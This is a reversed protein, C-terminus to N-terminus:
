MNNNNNDDEDNNKRKIDAAYVADAFTIDEDTFHVDFLSVLKRKGVAKVADNKSRLQDGILTLRQRLLLHERKHKEINAYNKAEMEKEEESFVALATSTVQYFTEVMSEFQEYQNISTLLQQAADLIAERGKDFSAHGTIMSSMISIEKEGEKIPLLEFLKESVNEIHMIENIWTLGNGIMSALYLVCFGAVVIILITVSTQVEKKGTELIMNTMKNIGGVIDNRLANLVFRAEGTTFTIDEIEMKSIRELNIRMRSLLTTLGHINGTVGYMRIPNMQSCDDSEALFCETEKLLVETNFGTNMRTVPVSDYTYDNTTTYKSDGFHCDLHVAEFYRSMPVLMERATLQSGSCHSSNYMVPNRSRPFTISQDTQLVPVPQLISTLLFQIQFLISARMGSLIINATTPKYNSVYYCVLTVPVAVAVLGLLVSLIITIIIKNNVPSPLQQYAASHKEIEKEMGEEWATDEVANRVLGRQKNKEAEDADEDEYSLKPDPLGLLPVQSSLVLPESNDSTNEGTKASGVNESPITPLKELQAYPLNQSFMMPNKQQYLSTPSLPPIMQTSNFISGTEYESMAHQISISGTSVLGFHSPSRNGSLFSHMALPSQSANIMDEDQNNLLSKSMHMQAYANGGFMPSLQAKSMNGKQMMSMGLPGIEDQGNRAMGNDHEVFGVGNSKFGFHGAGSVENKSPFSPLENVSGEGEHKPSNSSPDNNSQLLRAKSKLNSNQDAAQMGKVNGENVRPSQLHSPAITFATATQEGFLSKNSHPTLPADQISELLPENELLMPSVAEGACMDLVSSSIVLPTKKPSAEQSAVRSGPSNVLVDAARKDDELCSQQESNPETKKSSESEKENQMVEEDAAEDLLLQGVEDWHEIKGSMCSDSPKTDQNYHMAQNMDFEEDDADDDRLLRRIVSQMKNKPVDLMAQYAKMRNRVARRTFIIYIILLTISLPTIFLTIILIFATIIMNCDTNMLEFYYIIVRKAGDLIPVPCNFVLYQINAIYEPDQPRSSINSLYLHHTMQSVTAIVQLMSSSHLTQRKTDIVEEVSGDPQVEEKTTIMFLYTSIDATEWVELNATSQHIRGLMSALNESTEKLMKMLDKKQIMGSPWDDFVPPDSFNYRKDYVFFNYGITASRASHYSLDCVNRLTQLNSQYSNTMIVYVVLAAVLAVINVFHLTIISCKLIVFNSTYSGNENRKGVFLDIIVADKKKRRKKMRDNRQNRRIDSASQWQKEGKAIGEHEGDFNQLDYSSSNAALKMNAGKESASTTSEQVSRASVEFSEQRITRFYNSEGEIDHEGTPSFKGSGESMRNDVEDVEGMGLSVDHLGAAAHARTLSKISSVSEEEILDARNLIIDAQEEDNHIDLLLRAYSRLVATNQGHSAILEEYSKRAIDENNVISNLLVPISKYDVIIATVNEFFDKMASVALEHHKEAKALLTTFVLSNMGGAGNGGNEGNARGGNEKAKCTLVFRLFLDPSLTRAKQILTHAKMHNKRYASLFTAYQFCLLSNNMNTKLAQTYVYDAFTLHIMSQYNEEQVFRLSPEVREPKKMAPLALSPNKTCIDSLQNEFASLLYKRERTKRGIKPLLVICMVIGAIVGVAQLVITITWNGTAGEIAYAIEDILRLCGFMCWKSAMLLNGNLKYIPQIYVFYVMMVLSSGVTVVGRWFPWEILTRMAFVCGFVFSTDVAQWLGRPSSWLGGHKPNHNFIMNNIIFSSLLVYVLTVIAIVFGLLPILDAYSNSDYGRHVLKGGVCGMAVIQIFNGALYGLSTGDPFCIYFIEWTKSPHKPQHYLPTFISFGIAELRSYNEALSYDISMGSSTSSMSMSEDKMM